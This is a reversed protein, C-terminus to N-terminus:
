ACEGDKAPSKTRTYYYFSHCFKFLDIGDTDYPVRANHRHEIVGVHFQGLLDDLGAIVAADAGELKGVAAVAGMADELLDKGIDTGLARVHSKAGAGNEIGRRRGEIELEAGIEEDRGANDVLDDRQRVPTADRVAGAAARYRLNDMRHLAAAVEHLDERGAGNATGGEDLVDEGRERPGHHHAGAGDFRGLLVEGGPRLGADGGDAHTRLEERLFDDGGAVPGGDRGEARLGEGPEARLNGSITSHARLGLLAISRM